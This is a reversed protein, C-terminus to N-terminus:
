ASHGETPEDFSAGYIRPVKTGMPRLYASLQGRHHVSHHIMFQLYMVMPQNFLEFLPVSTAWASAPIKSVLEIKSAFNDEYWAVIDATNALDAPMSDDDLDFKGLKFSDLFWIESSALHWVLEITSRSNAHPRYNGQATPVAKMIRTTIASEFRANSLYVDAFAQAIDPTM